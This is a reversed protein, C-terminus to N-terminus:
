CSAWNASLGTNVIFAGGLSESFEDELKLHENRNKKITPLTPTSRKKQKKKTKQSGTLRVL